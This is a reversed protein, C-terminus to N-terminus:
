EDDEDVYKNCKPMHDWPKPCDRKCFHCWSKPAHVKLQSVALLIGDRRHILEMRERSLTQMADEVIAIKDETRQQAKACQDILENAYDYDGM